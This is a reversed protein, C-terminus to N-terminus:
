HFKARDEAKFLTREPRRGTTTARIRPAAIIIPISDAAPIKPSTIAAPLM